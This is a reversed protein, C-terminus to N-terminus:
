EGDKSKGRYKRIESIIKEATEKKRNLYYKSDNYIYELISLIENTKKYSLVTVSSTKYKELTIDSLCLEDKLFTHMEKLFDPNGSFIRISKTHVNRNKRPYFSLNGDGDIIGRILHKYMTKEIKPFKTIFSKRPVVGYKELDSAMINSKVCVQWSGRGDENVKKSLGIKRAFLDVLEKDNSSISIQHQGHNIPHYVNGDTILLGLLYAKEECDINEFFHEDLDKNFIKTKSKLEINNRSLIRQVTIYNLGFKKAVSNISEFNNNYYEIIRNEDDKTIFKGTPM